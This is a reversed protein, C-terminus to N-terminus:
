RKLMMAAKELQKLQLEKLKEGSIKKDKSYSPIFSNLLICCWKIALLPKYVDIREALAPYDDFVKLMKEQWFSCLSENLMMAPHLQFDIIFKVPDDWGFYEFDLFNWTNNQDLIANHFGFDSPSLVRFGQALITNASLPIRAADAISSSKRKKYELELESIFKLLNSNKCSNLKAIRSEINQFLENLSFCAESAALFSDNSYNRSIEKLHSVFEVAQQIDESTYDESLKNRGDVYSYTACNTKYDFSLPKPIQRIKNNWLTQFASFETKLRERKDENKGPYFKAIIRQKNTLDVLYVKSNRGNSKICDFREVLDYALVNGLKKSFSIKKLDIFNMISLVGNPSKYTNKFM